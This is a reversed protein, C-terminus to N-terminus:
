RAMLLEVNFRGFLWDVAPMKEKDEDESEKRRRLSPLVAASTALLSWGVIQLGSLWPAEEAM